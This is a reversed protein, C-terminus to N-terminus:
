AFRKLYGVVISREDHWLDAPSVSKTNSFAIGAEQLQEANGESCNVKKNKYKRPNTELDVNLCFLQRFFQKVISLFDYPTDILAKSKDSMKYVQSMSLSYRKVYLGVIDKNAIKNRLPTKTFKLKAESVFWEGDVRYITGCHNAPCIPRNLIWAWFNIGFYVLPSMYTNTDRWNFTNRQFLQDGNQLDSFLLQRM